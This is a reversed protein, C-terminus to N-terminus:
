QSDLSEDHGPEHGGEAGGATLANLTPTATNYNNQTGTGSLLPATDEGRATLRNAITDYTASM